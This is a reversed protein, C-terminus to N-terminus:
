TRSEPATKPRARAPALGDRTKRRRAKLTSTALGTNHNRSPKFEKTLRPELGACEDWPHKGQHDIHTAQGANACDVNHHRCKHRSTEQFQGEDCQYRWTSDLTKGHCTRTAMHGPSRRVVCLAIADLPLDILPPRTVGSAGMCNM